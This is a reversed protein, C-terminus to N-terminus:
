TFGLEFFIFLHRLACNHEPGHVELSAPKVGSWSLVSTHAETLEAFDFSPNIEYKATRYM